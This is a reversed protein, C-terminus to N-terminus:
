IGITRNESSGGVRNAEESSTIRKTEASSITGNLKEIANRIRFTDTIMELTGKIFEENYSKSDTIPEELDIIKM